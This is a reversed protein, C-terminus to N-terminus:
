ITEIESLMNKRSINILRENVFNMYVQIVASLTQEESGIM